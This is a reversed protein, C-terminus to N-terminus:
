SCRSKNKLVKQFSRFLPNRNEKILFVAKLDLELAGCELQREKELLLPFTGFFSNSSYDAVHLHERLKAWPLEPEKRARAGCGGRGGERAADGNSSAGPSAQVATPREIAIAM